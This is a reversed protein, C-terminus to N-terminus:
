ERRVKALERGTPMATECNSGDLMHALATCANVLCGSTERSARSQELLALAQEHELRPNRARLLAVVGSIQAAALSSGNEFDYRGDPRLTLVNRGPACVGAGADPWEASRVAIVGPVAAPFRDLSGSNEPEAGVVIAGRAIARDLLRSLLMDAPGALSLNIVAARDQIARSLARALTFSNCTASAGAQSATSQWCARLILLRASPAVGVIGEGNNATAAIIGAVATGHSEVPPVTDDVLNVYEEIRGALDPHRDDIGTDVIAVRVNEGRSRRHAGAIDMATLGPQLDFYPDDYTGGTRVSFTQMPQASEVDPDSRLRALVADRLEATTITFVACHVGLADIPWEALRKLPYRAELREISRRARPSVEYRAAGGGYSKPTSGARLARESRPNEVTVLIQREANARSGSVASTSATQAALPLAFVWLLGLVLLRPVTL